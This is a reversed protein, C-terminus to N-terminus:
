SIPSLQNSHAVSEQAANSLM